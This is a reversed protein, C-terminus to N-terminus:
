HWTKRCCYQFSSIIWKLSDIKQHLLHFYFIANQMECFTSFNDFKVSKIKVTYSLFAVIIPQFNCTLNKFKNILITESEIGEWCSGFIDGPALSAMQAALLMSLGRKLSYCKIPSTGQFVIGVVTGRLHKLFFFRTYHALVQVQIKFM